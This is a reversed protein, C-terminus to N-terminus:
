TMKNQELTEKVKELAGCRVYRDTRLIANKIDRSSSSKHLVIVNGEYGLLPGIGMYGGSSLGLYKLGRGIYDFPAFVPVYDSIREIFHKIPKAVKLLPGFMLEVTGEAAKLVVNGTSGDTVIVAGKYRGIFHGEFCGELVNWGREKLGLLRKRTGQVLKNGKHPEKGISLVGVLPNDVGLYAQSFARGMLANNYLDKETIPGIIAGGDILVNRHPLSVAIAPEVYSSFRHLHRSSAVVTGMTEGPSIVADVKERRLQRMAKYISSSSHTAKDTHSYTRLSPVFNRAEVGRPIVEPHLRGMLFAEQEAEDLPMIPIVDNALDEEPYRKYKKPIQDYGPFVLIEIGPNRVREIGRKVADYGSECETAEVAIRKKEM